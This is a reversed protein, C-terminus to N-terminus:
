SILDIGTKILREFLQKGRSEFLAISSDTLQIANAKNDGPFCRLFGKRQLQWCLESVYDLIDEDPKCYMMKAVYDSDDFYNAKNPVMSRCNIKYREWIIHLVKQQDKTLGDFSLM